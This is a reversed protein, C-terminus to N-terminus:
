TYDGNLRVEKCRKIYNRLLEHGYETLEAEPHFQVGFIPLDKHAIGMITGDETHSTIILEEPMSVSDIMLSHYRTVNFGQTIGEYLFSEDHSVSSIKGHMPKLGKIIKAGFMHGIVQHGLCIGLIPFEGGLVKVVDCCVGSDEPRKPGPSLFIGEPNLRRIEEITIADNRVILINEGIEEIYRVLNYVFSDYNDIMLFM